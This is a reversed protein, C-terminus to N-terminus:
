KIVHIAPGLLQITVGLALNLKVLALSFKKLANKESPEARATRPALILGRYLHIAIMLFSLAYKASLTLGMFGSLRYGPTLGNLAALFVGTVVLVTISYNALPGFRKALEAMLSGGAPEPAQMTAPIAVYLIFVIGGVWTVAALLHLWLLIVSILEM